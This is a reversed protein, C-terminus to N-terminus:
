ESWYAFVAARRRRWAALAMAAADQADLSITYRPASPPPLVPEAPAARDPCILSPAHCTRPPMGAALERLVSPQRQFIRLASAACRDPMSLAQAALEVVDLRPDEVLASFVTTLGKLAAWSAWVASSGESSSDVAASGDESIATTGAEDNPAGVRLRVDRLLRQIVAVCVQRSREDPAIVRHCAAAVSSVDDTADAGACDVDGRRLLRDLLPLDSIHLPHVRTAGAGAGPAPAVCELLVALAAQNRCEVASWVAAADDAFPDIRVAPHSLLLQLTRVHGGLICLPLAQTAADGLLECVHPYSLMADIVNSHGRYAAMHLVTAWEVSEVSGPMTLEHIPAALGETAARLAAVFAFQGQDAAVSWAAAAASALMESAISGSGAPQCTAAVAPGDFTAPFAAHSVLVAPRGLTAAACCRSLATMSRVTGPKQTAACAHLLLHAAHRVGSDAPHRRLVAFSVSRAGDGCSLGGFADVIASPSVSAEGAACDKSSDCAVKSADALLLLALARCGAICLDANSVHLHLAALVSPAAFGAGSGSARPSPMFCALRSILRAAATCVPTNAGNECASAATVAVTLGGRAALGAAVYPTAALAELALLAQLMFAADVARRPTRAEAASASEFIAALLANAVGCLLLRTARGAEDAALATVAAAYHQAAPGASEVARLGAALANSVADPHVFMPLNDSEDSDYDRQMACVALAAAAHAAAHVGDPYGLSTKNFLSELLRVPLHSGWQSASGFRLAARSRMGPKRIWVWPEMCVLMRCSANIMQLRAAASDPSGADGAAHIARLLHIATADSHLLCVAGAETEALRALTKLATLALKEELPTALPSERVCDALKRVAGAAVLAPHTADSRAVRHLLEAIDEATLFRSFDLCDQLAVVLPELASAFHGLDADPVAAALNLLAALAHSGVDEVQPDDTGVEEPESPAVFPYRQLVATLTEVTGARVLSGAQKADLPSTWLLHCANLLLYDDDYDLHHSITQLAAQAIGATLLAQYQPLCDDAQCMVWWLARTCVSAIKASEVHQKLGQLMADAHGEVVFWNVGDCGRGSSFGELLSAAASVVHEDTRHARLARSLAGPLREEFQELRSKNVAAVTGADDPLSIEIRWCVDKFAALGNCVDRMAVVDRECARLAVFLAAPEALVYWVLPHAPPSVGLQCFARAGHRMVPLRADHLAAILAGRVLDGAALSCEVDEDNVISRLLKAAQNAEAASLARPRPPWRLTHSVRADVEANSM